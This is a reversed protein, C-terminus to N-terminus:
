GPAHMAGPQRPGGGPGPRIRAAELTRALFSTNQAPCDVPEDFSVFNVEIGAELDALTLTFYVTAGRPRLEMDLVIRPAGAWDVLADGGHGLRLTGPMFHLEAATDVIDALNAFREMRIFAIYDAVDIMRLEGVVAGIAEAVISEREQAHKQRIM